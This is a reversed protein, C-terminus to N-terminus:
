FLRPIDISALHLRAALRLGSWHETVNFRGLMRLSDMDGARLRPCTEETTFTIAIGLERLLADTEETWYGFPYALAILDTSIRGDRGERFRSLDAELAALYDDGSEKELPLMGERGSIGYDALQHMDWSHCQVDLVGKEVWVAAEGYSFRAPILPEGTHAYATQGENIGIVFVTARLGLEELIPAALELNSSYGDDFTILVPKRPLPTGRQVYDLLQQVTVATFGARKVATMQRRFREPTVVLDSVSEEAFHHYLLVPVPRTRRPLLAILLVAALLILIMRRITQKM